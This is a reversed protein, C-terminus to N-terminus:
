NSIIETMVFENDKTDRAVAKLEGTEDQNFTFRFSPNESISFNTQAQMILEDNFTVLVDKIYHAPIFLTSLQDRQMGTNNPHSIMLQVNKVPSSPLDSDSLRFRMNGLRAKHEEQNMGPPASCGAGRSKVWKKDMYLSGDSLEAVARVFTYGNVRVRTSIEELPRNASLTFIGAMPLPNVDVSLYVKDITVLPDDPARTTITLPVLADNEARAPIDLSIVRQGEGEVITRESFYQNSIAQWTQEVQAPTNAGGFDAYQDTDSHATGAAGLAASWVPLVLLLSGSILQKFM